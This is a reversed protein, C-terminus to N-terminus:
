KRRQMGLRTKGPMAILESARRLSRSKVEM